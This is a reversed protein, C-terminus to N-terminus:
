VKTAAELLANETSRHRRIALFLALTLAILIFGVAIIAWGSAHDHTLSSSASVPLSVAASALSAKVKTKSKKAEEDARALLAVRPDSLAQKARALYRKRDALGNVGGNVCRTVGEVDDRDAFHNLTKGLRIHTRWYESATLAAAPFASASEPCGELDIGLAKGYRAYNARGTLQILGRGKFRVGDGKRINGLDRRGEYAKGSAYEVTTKFGASEHACQALFHALRLPSDLEAREICQDLSAAFGEIVTAKARPEIALLVKKFDTM